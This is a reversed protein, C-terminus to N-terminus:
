KDIVLKQTNCNDNQTLKIFYVGSQLDTVNIEIDPENTKLEKITKGLIDTIVITSGVSNSNISVVLKDKAPNPYIVMNTKASLERTSTTTTSCFKHFFNWILVSANIDQNTNGFVQIPLAGPWTHGGNNIRYLTVETGNTGGGYYLEDATCSDSISINPVPTTTPTISCNNQTAWWQVLTEIPPFGASGNYFVISDATGHFHMVPIANTFACTNQLLTSMNGSVPAIATIQSSLSCAMKYTMYAGNSIGTFFLCSNISFDQRITDILATLFDVDVSSGAYVWAGSTSNPYVVVFNATDAVDDFGTYAEQELANAGFGHMNIVLPYTNNPTYGTPTHVIYSRYVGQGQMYISDLTSSQAWSFQIYIIATIIVIFIKKIQM